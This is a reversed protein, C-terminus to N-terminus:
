TPSDTNFFTCSVGGFCQKVHEFVANLTEEDLNECDLVDLYRSLVDAEETEVLYAPFLEDLSDVESPQM